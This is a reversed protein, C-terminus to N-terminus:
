RPRGTQAPRHVARRARVTTWLAVTGLVTFHAWATTAGLFAITGIIGHRPLDLVLLSAILSISTLPGLLILRPFTGFLGTPMTSRDALGLLVVTLAWAWVGVSAVLSVTEQRWIAGLTATTLSAVGFLTLVGQRDWWRRAVRRLRDAAGVDHTM